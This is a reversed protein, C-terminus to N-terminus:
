RAVWDADFFKGIFIYHIKTFIANLIGSLLIKSGFWFLSKLSKLSFLSDEVPLNFQLNRFYIITKRGQREETLPEM